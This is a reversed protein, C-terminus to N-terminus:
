DPRKVEFDIAALQEPSVGAKKLFRKWRPDDRLPDFLPDHVLIYRARHLEFGHELWKFAEDLRGQQAHILAISEAWSDPLEEE